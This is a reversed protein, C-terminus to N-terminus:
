CPLVSAPPGSTMTGHAVPVCRHVPCHTVFVSTAFQPAAQTAQGTGVPPVAVQSPVAQLPVQGVPWFSHAPAQMAVVTDHTPAQLAPLWSQAPVQWGLALGFVQPVDHVAHVMGNCPVAVQSPVM